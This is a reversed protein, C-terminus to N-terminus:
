IRPRDSSPAAPATLWDLMRQPDECTLWESETMRPRPNYGDFHDRVQVPTLAEGGQAFIQRRYRYVLYWLNERQRETLSGYGPTRAYEGMDRAFRKEWSAPTFRCGALARAAHREAETM